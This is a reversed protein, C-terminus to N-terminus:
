TDEQNRHKDLASVADDYSGSECVVRGCGCRAMWHASDPAVPTLEAPDDCTPQPATEDTM